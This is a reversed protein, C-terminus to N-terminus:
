YLPPKCVSMTCAGHVRFVLNLRGLPLTARAVQGDRTAVQWGSHDRRGASFLALRYKPTSECEMPGTARRCLSTARAVWELKQNRTSIVSHVIWLAASNRVRQSDFDARSGIGSPGSRANRAVCRALGCGEKSRLVANHRASSRPAHGPANSSISLRAHGLGVSQDRALWVGQHDPGRHILSQTARELAATSVRGKHAFCAAIGCM